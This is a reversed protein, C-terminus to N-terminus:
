PTAESVVRCGSSDLAALMAVHPALKSCTQYKNGRRDGVSHSAGANSEVTKPGEFPRTQPPLSTNAPFHVSGAVFPRVPDFGFLNTRNSPNVDIPPAAPLPLPEKNQFLPPRHPISLNPIRVTPPKHKGQGFPIQVSVTYKPNRELKDKIRNERECLLVYHANFVHPTLDLPVLKVPIFPSDTYTTDTHFLTKAFPVYLKRRVSAYVLKEIKLMRRITQERSTCKIAVDLCVCSVGNHPELQETLSKYLERSGWEDRTILTCNAVSNLALNARVNDAPETCYLYVKKCLRSLYIGIAGIQCGMVVVVDANQGSTLGLLEAVTKCLLDMGPPKAYFEDKPGVYWRLDGVSEVLTLNTDGIWVETNSTGNMVIEHFHLGVIDLARQFNLFYELLSKKLAQYGASVKEVPTVCIEIRIIVAGAHNCYIFLSQWFQDQNTADLIPIGSMEVFQLVANEVSLFRPSRKNQSPLNDGFRVFGVLEKGARNESVCSLTTLLMCTLLCHLDVFLTQVCTHLVHLSLSSSTELRGPLSLSSSTGLRGPLSLSSSTGLRGPLSLSSSTGLRGPLYLSSSIGLRGPLYLSSSTGLRDPLSLSSSTGLRGPLSLSSSIGLRGPLYLSSSTGLRGPLFSSSSTGLRGPLFSSSSTGLRGPLYLSSSIGLRGPLYLSSSTGLRGPLSLSSSIGLRGPLYLSSSTGLRGPLFSSSSTGLRGPLSMSSSTGLRGPLSLTCEGVIYFDSLCGAPVRCRMDELRFVLGKTRDRVISSLAKELAYNLASIERRAAECKLEVQRQCKKRTVPGGDLYYNGATILRELKNFCEPKNVDEVLVLKGDVKVKALPHWDLGMPRSLFYEMGRVVNERNNFKFYCFLSDTPFKCVVESPSVMEGLLYKIKDMVRRSMHVVVEIIYPMDRGRRGEAATKGLDNAAQPYMRSLPQNNPEAEELADM